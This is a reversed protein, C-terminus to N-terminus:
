SASASRASSLSRSGARADQVTCDQVLCLAARRRQQQRRLYRRRILAREDEGFGGFVGHKIGNVVAYHGCQQRVPCLRCIAAAQAERAQMDQPIEGDPGSWLGPDTGICAAHDMWGANM